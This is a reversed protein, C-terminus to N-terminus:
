FVTKDCQFKTSTVGKYHDTPAVTDHLESLTQAAM